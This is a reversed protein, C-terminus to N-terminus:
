LASPLPVRGPNVMQNGLVPTKSLEVMRSLAFLLIGWELAYEEYLFVHYLSIVCFLLYYRISLAVIRDDPPGYLSIRRTDRFMRWLIFVTLLIGPLGFFFLVAFIGIDAPNFSLEKRARSAETNGTREVSVMGIGVYDTAKFLEGYHRIGDSRITVTDDEGSETVSMSHYSKTVIAVPDISSVFPMVIILSALVAAIAVFVKPPAHKLLFLFVCILVAIIRMRSVVVFFLYAALLGLSAVWWSRVAVRQRGMVINVISYIIAFVVSNNVGATATLRNIGFRMGIAASDVFWRDAVGLATAVVYLTIVFVISGCFVNIIPKISLGQPVLFSLLAFVLMGYYMMPLRIIEVPSQGGRIVGSILTPVMVALLLAVICRFYFQRGLKALKAGSFFCVCGLLILGVAGLRLANVYHEDVQLVKLRAGNSWLFVLLCTVLCAMLMGNRRRPAVSDAIIGTGPYPSPSLATTPYQM